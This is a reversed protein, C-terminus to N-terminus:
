NGRGVGTAGRPAPALRPLAIMRPGRRPRRGSLVIAVGSASLTGLLVGWFTPGISFQLVGTMAANGITMPDFIGM